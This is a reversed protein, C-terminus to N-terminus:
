ASVLGDCAAQILELDASLIDHPLSHLDFWRLWEHCAIESGPALKCEYAAIIWHRTADSYKWVSRKLTPILRLPIIDAGLEERIERVVAQEPTEGCEVKGGPLDWHNDLGAVGMPVRRELLVCWGEPTPKVIMAAAILVPFERVKDEPHPDVTSSM